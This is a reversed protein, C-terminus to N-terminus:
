KLTKDRKRGRESICHGQINLSEGDSVVERKLNNKAKKGKPTSRGDPPPVAVTENITVHLVGNLVKM